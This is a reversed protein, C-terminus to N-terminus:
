LRNTMETCYWCRRLSTSLLPQCSLLSFLSKLLGLLHKSPSSDLFRCHCRVYEGFPLLPFGPSHLWGAKVGEYCGRNLVNTPLWKLLPQSKKLGGRQPFKLHSLHNHCHKKNHNKPVFLHFLIQFYLLDLLCFLFDGCDWWVPTVAILIPNYISRSLTRHYTCLHNKLLTNSLM